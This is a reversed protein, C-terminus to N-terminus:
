KKSVCERTTGGSLPVEIRTPSPNRMPKLEQHISAWVKEQTEHKLIEKLRKAGEVQENGM